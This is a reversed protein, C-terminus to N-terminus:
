RCVACNIKYNRDLIGIKKGKENMNKEEFDKYFICIAM